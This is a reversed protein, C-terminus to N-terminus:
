ECTTQLTVAAGQFAGAVAAAKDAPLDILAICEDGPPACVLTQVVASDLVAKGGQCIRVSKGANVTGSGVLRAPMSIAIILKGATQSLVPLFALDAPEIPDGQHAKHRLYRPSLDGAQVLGGASLDRAARFGVTNSQRMSIFGSGILLLVAYAIFAVWRVFQPSQLWSKM